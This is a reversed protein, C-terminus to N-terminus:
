CISNEAHKRIQAVATLFHLGKSVLLDYKMEQGITTLLNWVTTIFPQLLEGFADEYKQVYLVLVECIGTKVGELPGSESEDDTVLLPNEYTLYKSLLTTIAPLNEEFMPPLDQCSLDYFLKILLDM